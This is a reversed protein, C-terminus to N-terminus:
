YWGKLDSHHLANCPNDYRGQIYKVGWKIQTEPNTLWDSGETRMKRGPLAQPIGYAGSAKNFADYQWRSERNWLKVLCSFQDQGWGLQQGLKYAFDQASGADPIGADAVFTASDGSVLKFGGRSFSVEVASVTDLPHEHVFGTSSSLNLGQAATLSGSYPDVITVLTLATVFVFAIVPNLAGRKIRPLRPRTLEREDLWIDVRTNLKEGFTPLHAEHRGM